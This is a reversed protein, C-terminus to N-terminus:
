HAIYGGLGGGSILAGIIVGIVLGLVLLGAYRVKESATIGETNTSDTGETKSEKAVM